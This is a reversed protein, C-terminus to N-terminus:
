DPRAGCHRRTGRVVSEFRVNDPTGTPNHYTRTNLRNTVSENAWLGGMIAWFAADLIQESDADDNHAIIASICIKATHVFKLPGGVNGDGDPVMGEDGIECCLVPLDGTQIPLRRNRKATYGTFFPLASLAQLFQERLVWSYSQTDTIGM